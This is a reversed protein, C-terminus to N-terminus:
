VCSGSPSRAAGSAASVSSALQVSRPRCAAVQEGAPTRNMGRSRRVIQQAAPAQRLGDADQSRQPNASLSIPVFVRMRGRRASRRTRGRRWGRPPWRRSSRCTRSPWACARLGSRRRRCGRSRACRRRARTGHRSWRRTGAVAERGGAHHGAGGVGVLDRDGREVRGRRRGVCIVVISSLWRRSRRRAVRLQREEDEGAAAAVPQDDVLRRREILDADLVLGAGQGDARGDVEVHSPSRSMRM